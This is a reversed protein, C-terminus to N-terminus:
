SSPCPANEAGALAQAIAADGGAVRRNHSVFVLWGSVAWASRFAANVDGLRVRSLYDLTAAPDAPETFVIDRAAADIIADGLAPSEAPAAKADLAARSSALQRDLEEQSFGRDIACRLERQAALLAGRWDRNRASADVSAIRATGFLDYIASSASTFAADSNSKRALRRNLM